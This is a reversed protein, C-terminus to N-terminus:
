NEGKKDSISSDNKDKMAAQVAEVIHDTKADISIEQPRQEAEKLGLIELALKVIPQQPIRDLKSPILLLWSLHEGLVPIYVALAALVLTVICICSWAILLFFITWEKTKRLSYKTINLPLTIPLFVTWWIM